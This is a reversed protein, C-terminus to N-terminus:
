QWSLSVLQNETYLLAADPHRELTRVVQALAAQHLVDDQDIFGIYTGEALEIASNTAEAIHGNAPRFLIKIRSDKAALAELRPRIAPDTSCDDALCLQWNPYTQASISDILEGLSEPEPNYVPVCLSILPQDGRDSADLAMLEPDRRALYEPYRTMQWDSPPTAIGAVPEAAPPRPPRQFLRRLGLRKAVMRAVVKVGGYQRVRVLVLGPNKTFRATKSLWGAIRWSPSRRIRELEAVDRQAAAWNNDMLSLEVLGQRAQSLKRAQAHWFVSDAFPRWVIELRAGGRLSPASGSALPLDWHAEPGAVTFVIRGGDILPAFEGDTATAATTELARRCTEDIPDLQWVPDGTATTLRLEILQIAGNLGAFGIRLAQLNPLDFRARCPESGVSVEQIQSRTPDYGAGDDWSIAIRVM